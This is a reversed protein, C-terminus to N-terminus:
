YRTRWHVTFAKLAPITAIQGVMKDGAGLVTRPM